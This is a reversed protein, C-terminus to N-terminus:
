AWSPQQCCDNVLVEPMRGRWQALVRGSALDVVAVERDAAVSDGAVWWDSSPTLDVYARGGSVALWSVQRSGFLHLPRRDGPGFVTLGFARVAPRRTGAGEPPGLLRGSALLRGGAVTVAGANAHVTVAKWTRTDVVRLGAPRSWQAVVSGRLVPESDDQGWVALLGGGLWAAQRVPGHVSKAQAAPLLWGALRGLLGPRRDVWHWSVELDRLDVEAVPAERGVVFARRGVPDVALGPQWRLAGVGPGPNEPVLSGAAIAPLRVARMGGDGDVVVLRAPGVSEADGLLLVMGDPLRGAALLSGVTRRRAVVRGAALDVVSVTAAALDGEPADTVGMGALLVGSRGLWSAAFPSQWLWGLRVTGVRRLRRLDVVLVTGDDSDGGDGFVALSGDPAVAWLAGYRGLSLRRGPRPRLSLADLWGLEASEAGPPGRWVVGLVRDASWGRPAAPLPMRVPAAGELPAALDAPPALPPAAMCGGALLLGAVAVTVVRRRWVGM